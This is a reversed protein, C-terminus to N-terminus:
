ETQNEEFLVEIAENYELVEEIPVWYGKCTNVIHAQLVGKDAWGHAADSSTLRFKKLICKKYNKHFCFDQERLPFSELKKIFEARKEKVTDQRKQVEKLYKLYNSSKLEDLEKMRTNLTKM